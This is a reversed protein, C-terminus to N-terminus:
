LLDMLEKFADDVWVFLGKNPAFTDVENHKRIDDLRKGNIKGTVFGYSSEDDKCIRTVYFQKSYGVRKYKDEEGRGPWGMQSGRFIFGKSLLADRYDDKTM